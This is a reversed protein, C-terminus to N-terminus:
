QEYILKGEVPIEGRFRLDDTVTNSCAAISGIVVLILFPLIVRM